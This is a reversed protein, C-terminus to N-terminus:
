YILIYISIASSSICVGPLLSVMSRTMISADTELRNAAASTNQMTRLKETGTSPVSIASTPSTVAKTASSEPITAFCSLAPTSTTEISINSAAKIMHLLITPPASTNPLKRASPRPFVLLKLSLCYVTPLVSSCDRSMVSSVTIVVANLVVATHARILILDQSCTSAPITSTNNRVSSVPIFSGIMGYRTRATLPTNVAAYQAPLFPQVLDLECRIAKRVTSRAPPHKRIPIM